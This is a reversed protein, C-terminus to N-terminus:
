AEIDEKFDKSLGEKLSSSLSLKDSFTLLKSTRNSLFYNLTPLLNDPKKDFNSYIYSSIEDIFHDNAAPLWQYINKGVLDEHKGKLIKAWESFFNPLEAIVSQVSKEFEYDSKADSFVSLLWDKLINRATMTMAGSLTRNMSPRLVTFTCIAYSEQLIYATNPLKIACHNNILFNVIDKCLESSAKALKRGKLSGRFFSIM